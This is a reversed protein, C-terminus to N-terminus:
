GLPEDLRRRIETPLAREGVTLEPEDDFVVRYVYADAATTEQRAAARVATVLAQVDPQDPTGLEAFGSRTLGAIGGSRRVTMRM